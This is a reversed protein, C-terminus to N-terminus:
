SPRTVFGLFAQKREPSSLDVLEAQIHEHARGRALPQLQRSSRIISPVNPTGRLPRRSRGHNYRSDLSAANWHIKGATLPWLRLVNKQIFIFGTLDFLGATQRPRILYYHKTASDTWM